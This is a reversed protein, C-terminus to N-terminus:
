KLHVLVKQREDCKSCTISVTQIDTGHNDHIHKSLTSKHAYTNSNFLPLTTLM